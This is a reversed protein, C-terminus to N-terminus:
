RSKNQNFLQEGSLSRICAGTPCSRLKPCRKPFVEGYPCSGQFSHHQEGKPRYKEASSPGFISYTSVGASGALHLPLSDMAFVRDVSAMLNQLTALPLKELLISSDKFRTQLQQALELEEKSGWAFLFSIPEASHLRQLFDMLAADTVRKNKWAAGPCIMYRKKGALQPSALLNQIKQKQSDVIRLSVASDHFPADDSFHSKVLYLYDDRINQGAPPDFQQDTVWRNPQEPVSAKGFGIKKDAYALWTVLASKCNGQLDFLLDYHTSQLLKKFEFFQSLNKGKRWARTDIPIVSSILPHAQPLELFAKEVVWDIQADPFKKRLYEVVPFVHVIDGLASSKVILIKQPVVSM